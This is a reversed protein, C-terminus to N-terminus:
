IHKTIQKARESPSSYVVQMKNRGEHKAARCPKGPHTSLDKTPTHQTTLRANM